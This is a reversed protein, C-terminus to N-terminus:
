IQCFGRPVGRKQATGRSSQRLAFFRGFPYGEGKQQWEKAPGPIKWGSDLESVGGMRGRGM